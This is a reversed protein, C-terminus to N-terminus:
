RPEGCIVHLRPACLQWQDKTALLGPRASRQLDGKAWQDRGALSNREIAATPRMPSAEDM